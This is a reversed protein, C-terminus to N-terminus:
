TLPLINHNPQPVADATRTLGLIFGGGGAGCLKLYYREQDLGAQWISHFAEPIFERLHHYQLYSIQQFYQWLLQAKGSQLAEIAADSAPILKERMMQGFDTNEAKAKFAEVWPGTQRSIGTDLVFFHLDLYDQWRWDFVRIGEGPVIHIAQELYCILPDTGSSSGHFFSELQALQERLVAPDTPAASQQYRKYLAACLAGSSGAGYGTPIDSAFYLGKALDEQFAALDLPALLSKQQQLQRLYSALQPLAQQAAHNGWSWQGRFATWPLALAEAGQLVIHEGFLLIKAYADAM